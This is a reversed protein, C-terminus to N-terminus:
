LELVVFKPWRSQGYLGTGDEPLREIRVSKKPRSPLSAPHKGAGASAGNTKVRKSAHKRQAGPKAQKKKAARRRAAEDESDQDASEDEEPSGDSMEEDSDLHDENEADDGDQDTGRKRKAVVHAGDPAFKEPVKVVRGSRRRSAEPGPSTSTNSDM